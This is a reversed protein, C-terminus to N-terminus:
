IDVPANLATGPGPFFNVNTRIPFPEKVYQVVRCSVVVKNEMRCRCFCCMLNRKRGLCVVVLHWGMACSLAAGQGAPLMTQVM